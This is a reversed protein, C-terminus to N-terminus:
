RGPPLRDIKGELRGLAQAVTAVNAEVRALREGNDSSKEAWKEISASVSAVKDLKEEVRTIRRDQKIVFAAATGAAGVVASVVSKLWSADDLPLM